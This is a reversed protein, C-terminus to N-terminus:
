VRRIFQRLRLGMLALLSFYLLAAAGLSAAMLLARQGETAALAIWDVRWSLQQLLAGLAASAIVVKISFRVWGPAPKYSGLKRLGRMLWFANVLAGVGISLALGAVGVLPVFFVNLVQTLALVAIAIRVPTRTEQRAYFGPALVKVALLGLLGVGWGMVARATEVVDAPLFAKRHYLVAVLPEAFLLLAAACPLGFLLVMRLGWDLMDSYQAEDGKAQAASLQPTLVAALAVGLLAMPFEMLRDAYNLWSTAGVAIHSSIQTNILLSLQAVGVGLLAPGMQKLVNGVGPHEASARVGGPTFALRPRVGIRRLVPIQIALQLLGGLMVGLAMAYIGPYGWREMYPTLWWGAALVSMNLLVPTAAPILFRKWTNLIGASLAVMSMCGIYPFMWRTMVVSAQQGEDPMGSGLLWVLVPAGVVGIVCTVVLAWLLVTAVADILRHTAQEGEKAYTAALVPVFAQSFAGEAFLRRLMNPIRFAVLFADSMAGAGFMAAQMQERMLGTIRSALTLISILSAARLLNM